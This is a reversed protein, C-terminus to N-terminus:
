QNEQPVEHRHAMTAVPAQQAVMETEKRIITSSQRYNASLLYLPMKIWRKLLGRIQFRWRNFVLLNLVRTDSVGAESAYAAAFIGITEIPLALRKLNNIGRLFSYPKFRMRNNDILSFDYQNDVFSFLVNGITLDKHFVGKKHVRCIFRSFAMIAERSESAALVLLEDLPKYPTFLSLYYCQHLRGYKYCNIYGVPEPSTIGIKLLRESYEYARRAKSKRVTAFIYRNALTMRKFYKVALILGNISILRVNNRGVYIEEGMTAFNVPIQEIFEWLHSYTSHVFIERKM